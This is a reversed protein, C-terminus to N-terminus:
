GRGGRGLPPVVNPPRPPRRIRPDAGAEALIERREVEIVADLFEEARDHSELLSRLEAVLAPQDSSLRELYSSREEAPLETARSFAEKLETRPFSDPAM